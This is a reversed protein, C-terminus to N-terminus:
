IVYATNLMEINAQIIFIIELEKIVQTMLLKLIKNAFTGWKKILIHNM